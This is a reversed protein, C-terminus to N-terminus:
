GGAPHHAGHRRHPVAQDSLRLRRAEHGRRRPGGHPAREDHHRDHGALATKAERLVDIGSIGPLVVDVLAVDPKHEALSTVAEEGTAALLVDFDEGDLARGLTRLTLPEDDVILVSNQM